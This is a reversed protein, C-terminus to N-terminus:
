LENRDDRERDTELPFTKIQRKHKNKSRRRPMNKGQICKTISIM